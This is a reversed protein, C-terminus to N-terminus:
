DFGVVQQRAPVVYEAVMRVADKAKAREAVKSSFGRAEGLLEWPDLGREGGQRAVEAHGDEPVVEHRSTLGNSECQRRGPKM